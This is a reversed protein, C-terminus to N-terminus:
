PTFCRNWTQLFDAASEDGCSFDKAVLLLDIIEDNRYIRLITDEMDPRNCYTMTIHEGARNFLDKFAEEKTFVRGNVWDKLESLMQDKDKWNWLSEKLQIDALTQQDFCSLFVATDNMLSSLTAFEVGNRQGPESICIVEPLDIIGKMAEPDLFIANGNQYAKCLATLEEENRILYWIHQCVRFYSGTVNPWCINGTDIRCKELQKLAEMSEAVQHEYQLCESATRFETGDEAVYNTLTKTVVRM